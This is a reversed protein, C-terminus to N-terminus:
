DAEALTRKIWELTELRDRADAVKDLAERSNNWFDGTSHDGIGAPHQTLLKLSLMGKALDSEAELKLSNFMGKQM